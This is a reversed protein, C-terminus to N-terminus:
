ESQGDSSVEDPAPQLAAIARAAGAVDAVGWLGDKFGVSTYTRIYDNHDRGVKTTSRYSVNGAGDPKEVRRLKRIESGTVSDVSISRGATIILIRKNTVAYYSRGARLYNALAHGSLKAGFVLGVLGPIAMWIQINILFITWAGGVIIFVVGAVTRSLQIRACAGPSPRGRWVIEEGENLVANEVYTLVAADRDANM